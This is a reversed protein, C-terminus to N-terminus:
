PSTLRGLLLLSFLAPFAFYVMDLLYLENGKGLHSYNAVAASGLLM